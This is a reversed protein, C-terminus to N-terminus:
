LLVSLLVPLVRPLKGLEEMHTQYPSPYYSQPGTTPPHAIDHQNQPPFAFGTSGPPTPISPSSHSPNPAPRLSDPSPKIYLGDPRANLIAPKHQSPRRGIAPRHLSGTQALPPPHSLQQQPLPQAPLPGLPQPRPPLQQPAGTFSRLEATVDIGKEMLIRELLSNKYRLMLVEDAAQRSSQQLGSLQEEHHKITM